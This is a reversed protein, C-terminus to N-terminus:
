STAHHLQKGCARHHTGAQDTERREAECRFGRHHAAFQARRHRIGRCAIGEVRGFAAVAAVVAALKHKVAAQGLQIFVKLRLRRQRFRKVASVADVPIDFQARADSEMVTFRQGCGIHNIREAAMFVRRHGRRHDGEGALHFLNFRDARRLNGDHQFLGVNVQRRDEGGAREQNHLVAGFVETFADAGPRKHQFLELRAYTSGARLVFVVPLRAQRVEVFHLQHADGVRRGANVGQHGAVQMDDGREGGIIHFAQLLVALEGDHLALGTHVAVQDDTGVLCGAAVGIEHQRHLIQLRTFHDEFGHLLAEAGDTVVGRNRWPVRHEVFIDRLTRQIEVLGFEM